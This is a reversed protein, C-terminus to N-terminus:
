ARPPLTSQRANAKVWSAYKKRVASELTATNIHRATALDDLRSKYLSFLEQERSGGRAEMFADFSKLLAELEPDM